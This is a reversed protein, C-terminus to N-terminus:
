ITELRYMPHADYVIYETGIGVMPESKRSKDCTKISNKDDVISSSAASAWHGVNMTNQTHRVHSTILPHGIFHAISEPHSFTYPFHKTTARLLDFMFHCVIFLCRFSHTTYKFSKGTSMSPKASNVCMRECCCFSSNEHTM